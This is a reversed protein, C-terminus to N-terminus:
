ANIIKSYDLKFNALAPSLFTFDSLSGGSSGVCLLFSMDDMEFISLSKSTNSRLPPASHRPMPNSLPRVLPSPYQLVQIGHPYPKQQFTPQPHRSLLVNRHPSPLLPHHMPFKQSQPATLLPNSRWQNYVGTSPMYQNGVPHVFCGPQLYPMLPPRANVVTSPPFHPSHRPPQTFVVDSTSYDVSPASVNGGPVVSTSMLMSGPPMHSSLVLTVNSRSNTMQGMTSTVTTIINSHKLNKKHDEIWMRLPRTICVM